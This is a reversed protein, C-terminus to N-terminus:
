KIKSECKHSYKKNCYSVAILYSILWTALGDVLWGVLWGVFWGDLWGALWSVLRCVDPLPFRIKMALTLTRRQSINHQSHLIYWLTGSIKWDLLWRRIRPTPINIHLFNSVSSGCNRLSKQVQSNCPAQQEACKSQYM